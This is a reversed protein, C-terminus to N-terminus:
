TREASGDHSLKRDERLLNRRTNEASTNYCLKAAM